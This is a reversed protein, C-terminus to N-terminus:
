HVEVIEPNKRCFPTGNTSPTSPILTDAMLPASVMELEEVTFPVSRNEHRAEFGRLFWDDGSPKITSAGNELIDRM